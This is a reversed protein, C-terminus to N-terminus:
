LNVATPKQLRLELAHVRRNDAKAVTFRYRGIVVSEGVKPLRKFYHLVLGGITDYETDDFTEDFYENFEEILTLAPLWYLNRGLQKIETDEIIDHEDEIEGVIEELIDEITILGSIVGYEDVVVAMHQQNRQFEKLLVHLRKSEPVIVAPRLFDRLNFDQPVNDMYILLDKALLIGVVEDREEDLVPFRSHASEQIIPLFEELTQEQQIYVMHARPVMIDRVHLTRIRLAGELMSVTTHDLWPFQNLWRIFAQQDEPYRQWLRQWGLKIRQWVTTNNPREPEEEETKM